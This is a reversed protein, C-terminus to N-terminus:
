KEKPYKAYYKPYLKTHDRLMQLCWIHDDYSVSDYEKRLEANEDYVPSSYPPGYLRDIMQQRHKITRENCVMGWLGWIIMMGCITLAIIFWISM